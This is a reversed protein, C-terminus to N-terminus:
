ENTGYQFPTSIKFSSTMLRNRIKNKQKKYEAQPQKDEETAM